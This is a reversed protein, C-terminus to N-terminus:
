PLPRVCRVNIDSNKSNTDVETSDFSVRWAKSSSSADITSSWYYNAVANPFFVTNLKATGDDLITHSLLSQLEKVNPVRWPSTCHAAAEYWNMIAAETKQWILRADQDTITDDGNDKFNSSIVPLGRTCRTFHMRTNGVTQELSSLSPPISVEGNKFNVVKNYDAANPSPTSSWYEDIEITESFIIWRLTVSTSSVSFLSNIAPSNSYDVIDKLEHVTPLRWDDQGSLTLNNCYNVADSQVRLTADDQQQWTLKSNDDLITGDYNNTYSIPNTSIDWVYGSDPLRYLNEIEINFITEIYNNQSNIFKLSLDYLGAGYLTSATASSILFSQATNLEMTGSGPSFNFGNGGIEYDLVEEKNSSLWFRIPSSEGRSIKGTQEVKVSVQPLDVSTGDDISYLSLTISNSDGILTQTHPLLENSFITAEAFNTAIAIFTLEVDKPLNSITGSFVGDTQYIDQGGPILSNGAQQIDVNIKQVDDLTGLAKMNIDSEFLNSQTPITFNFIVASTDPDSDDKCGMVGYLLLSLIILSRLIKSTRKM